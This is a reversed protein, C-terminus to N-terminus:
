CGYLEVETISNWAGAKGTRLDEYGYCVIKVKEVHEVGMDYSEIGLGKNSSGDVIIEQWGHDTLALVDFHNRRTDGNHVAFGIDLIFSPEDLELTVEQQEPGKSSWRTDLNGDLLNTAKNEGDESTASIKSVELKRIMDCQSTGKTGKTGETGKDEEYKSTGCVILETLSNWDNEDNGKGMITMSTGKTAKFPFKQMGLTKGSSRQNELVPKGEVYVDFGQTRIDGKFFAIEVAGIEQSFGFDLELWQDTGEASWRTVAKGDVASHATHEGQSSSAKIDKIQVPYCTSDEPGKSGNSSSQVTFNPGMLEGDESVATAETKTEAKTGDIWYIDMVGSCKGEIDKFGDSESGGVGCTGKCENECFTSVKHPGTQIKVDGAKNDRMINGYVENDQGFQHGNIKHGGIRVAAGVNNFVENYRFVIEDARSDLCASNPDLQDTCTNYEIVVHSSGEKVDVENGNSKFVNHHIWIYRSEDDPTPNKGDDWQNSSTGIYLTEGNVGTKMKGFEFDHVGCNEVHNGVFEANTVYYRFRSCEGGFSIIRMNSVILGDIASLFEKGYQKMVRPKRIGHAYIGKDIYDEARKGDNLMGNLEFGDIRHYDHSVRFMRNDKGTGRVITKHTGTITIYKDKEGDRVTHLDESYEGDSIKVTDGPMAKEIAAQISDGPKVTLTAADALLLASASLFTFFIM